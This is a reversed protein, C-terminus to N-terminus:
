LLVDTVSDRLLTPAPVGEGLVGLGCRPPAPEPLMRLVRAEARQRVCGEAGARCGALQPVRPLPRRLQLADDCTVRCALTRQRGRLEQHRLDRFGGQIQTVEWRTRSSARRKPALAEGIELVYLREFAAGRPATCPSGLTRAGAGGNLGLRESSSSVLFAFGASVRSWGRAIGLWVSGQAAAVVTGGACGHGHEAQLLRSAVNRLAPSRRWSGRM